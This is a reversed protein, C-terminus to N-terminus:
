SKKPPPRETTPIAEGTVREVTGFVKGDALQAAIEQGARFQARRSLSQGSTADLLVAYGRELTPLPSVAHLTRALEALRSQRKPLAQTLERQLRNRLQTVASERHQLAARTARDLRRRFGQLLDRHASLRRGPHQRTLRMTLQDQTQALATLRSRMSRNLQRGGAEFRRLLDFRDPTVLEAAATPTPARLDAVFDCISFDTEHGVASVVPLDSAFVARSVQEDNFAHLDELSGGGRCLILVEAWAEENAQQLATRIAAPADEGQVPVPYLRLTALPWRREFVHIVDRIVAGRPSTIIGIRYPCSPLAQKQDPDFLGESELKKKLAEFAARLPGEGSSELSDVIMQFDGRAEYLSIRGAAIVNRGNEPRFGLARAQNRFLACRLQARDDKLAFYLHGSAPRSLNTIEGEVWVRGFGAELRLRADHNLESPTWVQRPEDM